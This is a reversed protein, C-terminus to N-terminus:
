VSCSADPLTHATCFKPSRTCVDLGCSIWSLVDPSEVPSLMVAGVCPIRIVEESLRVCTQHRIVCVMCGTTQNPTERPGPGGRWREVWGCAPGWASGAAQARWMWRCCSCPLKGSGSRSGLTQRGTLATGLGPLRAESGRSGALLQVQLQAKEGTRVGWCRGWTVGGETDCEPPVRTKIDHQHGQLRYRM